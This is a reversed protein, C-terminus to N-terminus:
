SGTASLDHLNLEQRGCWKSFIYHQQLPGIFLITEVAGRFAKSSSPNLSMCVQCSFHMVGVYFGLDPADALEAVKAHHQNYLRNLQKSEHQEVDSRGFNHGFEVTRGEEVLRSTEILDSQGVINYRDFVARPKHGSVGQRSVGRRARRKSAGQLCLSIM